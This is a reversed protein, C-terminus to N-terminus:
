KYIPAEKLYYNLEIFSSLVYHSQGTIKEVIIACTLNVTLTFWTINTFLRTSLSGSGVIRCQVFM